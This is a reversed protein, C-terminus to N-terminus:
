KRFVAVFQTIQAKDKVCVGKNGIRARYVPIGASSSQFPDRQRTHHADSDSAPTGSSKEYSAGELAIVIMRGEVSAQFMIPRPNQSQVWLCDDVQKFLIEACADGCPSAGADIEAQTPMQLTAVPPPPALAVLVPPLEPKAKPVPKAVAVAPAPVPAAAAVVPEGVPVDATVTSADPKARPVFPRPAPPVAATAPTRLTFDPADPMKRVAAFNAQYRPSEPSPTICAAKATQRFADGPPLVTTFLTETANFLTFKVPKDSVNKWVCGDDSLTLSECADGACAPTAAATCPLLATMFAAWVTAILRIGSARM